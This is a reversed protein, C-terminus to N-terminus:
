EIAKNNHYSHEARSKKTDIGRFFFLFLHLEPLLFYQLSFPSFRSNRSFFLEACDLPFFRVRSVLSLSPTITSEM